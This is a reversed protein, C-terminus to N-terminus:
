TTKLARFRDFASQLLEERSGYDPQSFSAVLDGQDEADKYTDESSVLQNFVPFPRDRWLRITGLRVPKGDIVQVTTTYDKYGTKSVKIQYTGPAVNDITIPTQGVLVTDLFVDANWPISSVSISGSTAELRIGTMTVLRSATVKVTKQYDRYGQMTIKVVRDGPPVEKIIRPTTGYLVGDIFVNAGSPITSVYINGTKSTPNGITIQDAFVVVDDAMITIKVTGPETSYVQFPIVSDLDGSIKTGSITFSTVVNSKRDQVTGGLNLEWTGAEIQFPLSKTYVGNTSYGSISILHSDDPESYDDWEYLLITNYDTNQNRFSISGDALQFPMTINSTEFSFEGGPVADMMMEIALSLKTNDPLDNVYVRLEDGSNIQHPEVYVLIASACSVLLLTSLVIGGLLRYMQM